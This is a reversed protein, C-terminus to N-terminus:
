IAKVPAPRISAALPKLALGRMLESVSSQEKFNARAQRKSILLGKALPSSYRRPKLIRQWWSRADSVELKFYAAGGDAMAHAYVVDAWGAELTSGPEMFLLWDGRASDFVPKLGNAQPRLVCGAEDALIRTTNDLSDFMLTVEVVLGDIAFSVLNQLTHALAASENEQVNLIVSIM